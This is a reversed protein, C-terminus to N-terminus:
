PMRTLLDALTILDLANHRLIRVIKEADSTRVYHHYADPIDRGPIDGYRTTGCIHRELTQLKCDPLQDRYIRRCEHLMDLHAPEQIFPISNAAARARMFPFDFSRGNFTVLLKKDAMNHVFLSTIAPEEAYDRALYQKVVLSAGDWVLLGILFVPSNSLGTTELDMFIIDELRICGDDCAGCLRQRLPSVANGFEQAFTGSVKPLKGQHETLRTEIMFAKGGFPAIIEAGSIAEELVIKPTDSETANDPKRTTRPLDRKYLIPGGQSPAIPAKAKRMRRRIEGIEMDQDPTNELPKRNLAEIRKLLDSNDRM